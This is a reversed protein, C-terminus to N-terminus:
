NKEIRYFNILRALRSLSYSKNDKEVSLFMSLKKCETHSLGLVDSFYKNHEEEQVMLEEEKGKKKNKILGLSKKLFKETSANKGDLISACHKLILNESFKNNEKTCSKNLYNNLDKYSIIGKSDEDINKVVEKIINLPITPYFMQLHRQLEIATVGNPHFELAEFCNKLSTYNGNELYFLFLKPEFETIDYNIYSTLVNFLNTKSITPLIPEKKNNYSKVFQFLGIGLSLDMQLPNIFLNRFQYLNLNEPLRLFKSINEIFLNKTDDSKDPIFGKQLLSVFKKMQEQFYNKDLLSIGTDQNKIQNEKNLYMIKLDFINKYDKSNIKEDKEEQNYELQRNVTDILDGKTIKHNYLLKQLDEYMEKAVSPHIKFYTILLKTFQVFSIETQYNTSNDYKSKKPFKENFFDEPSKKLTSVIKVAIFKWGLKTSGYNMNDNLFNILDIYSFYGDKDKDINDICSKIKSLSITPYFKEKLQFFLDQIPYFESDYDSSFDELLDILSWEGSEFVDLEKIFEELNSDQNVIKKLFPLTRKNDAPKKLNMSLNSKNILNNDNNRDITEFNNEVNNDINSNDVNNDINENISNNITKGEQIPKNEYIIEKSLKNKLLADLSPLNGESNKELGMIPPPYVIESNKEPEVDEKVLSYLKEELGSNIFFHDTKMNESKQDILTSFLPFEQLNQQKTQYYLNKTRKINAGETAKLEETDFFNNFKMYNNKMPLQSIIDKNNINEKNDENNDKNLDSQKRPLLLLENFEEFSLRYNGNINLANIMFNLEDAKVENKFVLSKLKRKLIDLSIQEENNIKSIDFLMKPTITSNQDLIKNSLKTLWYFDSESINYNGFKSPGSINNKEGKKFVSDNRYSDIVTVLDQVTIVGRKKIDICKFIAIGVYDTLKLEPVVKSIFDNVNLETQMQFGLKYFFEKTTIKMKKGLTYAINYFILKLSLIEKNLSRAIATFLLTLNINGLSNLHVKSLFYIIDSKDIQPYFSEFLSKFKSFPCYGGFEKELEEYFTQINVESNEMERFIRKMRSESKPRYTEEMM